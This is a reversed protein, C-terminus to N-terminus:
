RAVTFKTAVVNVRDDVYRLTYVGPPLLTADIAITAGTGSMHGDHLVALRRGMLDFLEVRALSPTGIRVDLQCRDEVVNPRVTMRPYRERSDPASSATDALLTVAYWAATTARQDLVLTIGTGQRVARIAPGRPQGTSDLPQVMAVNVSDAPRMTLRVHVPDIVMPGSGWLEAFTSDTWRMGAREARSAIALFSRGARDLTGGSDLSAWIVTATENTSLLAIDLNRLAIGGSRNLSGSAGQLGPADLQLTGRQYEWLIERTDSQVEGPVAGPFGLDAYQTFSSANTSDVAIRYVSPGFSPFGGPVGYYGWVDAFRPYLRVQRATRQIPLSTTAGKLLGGRVILAAVPTMVEMVPNYRGDFHRLSDMAHSPRITSEDSYREFTVGSWRQHRAYAALMAISEAQYRNPYPQSFNAMFPMTSRAMAALSYLSAAYEARLQSTNMVQWPHATSYVYDWYGTGSVFDTSGQVDNELLSSLYYHSAGTTVQRAGISDRVYARLRDFYGRELQLYFDSQDAIRRETVGRNAAHGWPVRAISYSELSEGAALGTLPRERLQVDDLMVDGDVDGFYVILLSPTPADIPCLFSEEYRQWSKTIKREVYLGASANQDNNACYVIIRRGTDNTCKAMYSLTYAKAFEVTIPQYLYASYINGRTGRVRLKMALTGEPVSDTQTLITSVSTGEGEATAWYRDFEGEFGGERVLDAGGTDAVTTRWADRLNSTSSYRARLYDGWLTDIRRSHRWSLGYEGARYETYNARYLSLLSGEHAIEIMAVGPEDRYARGTFPNVHELISRAVVKNAREAAPYLYNHTKDVWLASDADYATLGDAINAVRASQLPLYLYIGNSILQAAFWDFRRMSLPDVSRYGNSRDLITLATDWGAYAHDFYRLRVLNVGIKRLHRATTVAALSDPFCGYWEFTTGVFWVPTGDDFALRGDATAQVFGHRGAPGDYMDPLWSSLTTDTPAAGYPVGDLIGISQGLCEQTLVTLLVFTLARYCAM